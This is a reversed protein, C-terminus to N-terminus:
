GTRCPRTLHTKRGTAVSVLWVGRNKCGVEVSASLWRGDPSFSGALVNRPLTRFGRALPSGNRITLVRGNPSWGLPIAANPALKVMELRSEVRGRAIAYV